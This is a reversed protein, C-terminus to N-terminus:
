KGGEHIVLLPIHTHYAMKQSISGSFLKTFLSHKKHILVLLTVGYNDAYHQLGDEIDDNHYYHYSDIVEGITSEQGHEDKVTQEMKVPDYKESVYVVQIKAGYAKSIPKLIELPETSKLVKLDYGLVINNEEDFTCHEPVALVPVKSRDIMSATNSGLLKEKVGSAGKTGMVVLDIDKAKLTDFVVDLLFGMSSLSEVQVGAPPPNKALKEALRQDSEEQLKESIDEPVAFAADAYAVPVHYAHLLYIRAGTKQALAMAYQLANDAFESFDTPVLINNLQSMAYDLNSRSISRTFIAINPIGCSHRQDTKNAAKM